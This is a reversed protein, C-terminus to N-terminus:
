NILKNGAVLVPGESLALRLHEGDGLMLELEPDPIYDVEPGIPDDDGVM